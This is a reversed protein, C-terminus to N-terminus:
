IESNYKVKEKIRERRTTESELFMLPFKLHYAQGGRRGAVPDCIPSTNPPHSYRFLYFARDVTCSGGPRLSLTIYYTPFITVIAYCPVAHKGTFDHLAVYYDNLHV